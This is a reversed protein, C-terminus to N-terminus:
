VWQAHTKVKEERPRDKRSLARLARGVVSRASRAVRQAYLERLRGRSQAIAEQRVASRACFRKWPCCIPGRAFGSSKEWLLGVEGKPRPSM